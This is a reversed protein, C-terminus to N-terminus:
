CIIALLATKIETLFKEKALLSTNLKLFGIERPNHHLATKLLIMLHDTKYGPMIDALNTDCILSSSVLFFNLGQKSLVLSNKM